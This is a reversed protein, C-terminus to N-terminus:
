GTPYSYIGGTRRGSYRHGGPHHVANAQIGALPPFSSGKSTDSAFEARNAEAKEDATLTGKKMTSFLNFMGALVGVFYLTGGIARAAYMPILHTVTEMFNPYMLTGEDTFEKWMLSQTIGGWYIPIVYLVTGLTAAWFHFNALKLSHIETNFIRPVIFISCRLPSDATGCCVSGYARACHCLRHLPYHCEREQVVDDPRRVHGYRLATVGVVMFKLVPDKRVRDWAGRLTFLGNIMGGWSPAILM